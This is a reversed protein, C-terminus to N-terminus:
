KNIRNFIIVKGQLRSQPQWGITKSDMSKISDGSLSVDGNDRINSIRKIIHQYEPHDCVVIDNVRYRQRYYTSLVIVYDDDNITPAMSDGVIKKLKIRLM